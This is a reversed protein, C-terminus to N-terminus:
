TAPPFGTPSRIRCSEGAPNARRRVGLAGAGVQGGAAFNTPVRAPSCPSSHAGHLGPRGELEQGLIAALAVALIAGAAMGGFLETLYGLELDRQIVACAYMGVGFFVVNGFSNYGTQGGLTDWTLAFVIMVWLFSLQTRYAPVIWPAALALALVALLTLRRSM